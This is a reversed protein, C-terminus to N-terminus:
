PALPSLTTSILMKGNRGAAWVLEVAYATASFTLPGTQKDLSHCASVPICFAASIMMPSQFQPPLRLMDTKIPIDNSCSLVRPKHANGIKLAM